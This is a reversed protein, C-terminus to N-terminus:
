ILSQIFMARENSNSCIMIKISEIDSYDKVISAKRKLCENLDIWYPVYSIEMKIRNVVDLELNSLKIADEHKMTKFTRM